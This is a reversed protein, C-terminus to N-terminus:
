IVNMMFRSGWHKIRDDSESNGSVGIANSIKEREGLLVAM